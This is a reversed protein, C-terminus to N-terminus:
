WNLIKKKEKQQATCKLIVERFGLSVKTVLFWHLAFSNFLHIIYHFNANTKPTRKVTSLQNQSKPPCVTTMLHPPDDNKDWHVCVLLALIFVYLDILSVCHRLRNWCAEGCGTCYRMHNRYSLLGSEIVRVKGMRICYPAELRICSEQPPRSWKLLAHRPSFPKECYCQFYYNTM